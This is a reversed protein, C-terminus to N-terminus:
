LAHCPLFLSQDVILQCILIESGVTETVRPSIECVWKAHKRKLKRFPPWRKAPTIELQLM